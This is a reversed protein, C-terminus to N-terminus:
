GAILSVMCAVPLLEPRFELGCMYRRVQAKRDKGLGFTCSGVLDAQHRRNANCYAYGRRPVIASM